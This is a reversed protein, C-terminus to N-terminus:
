KGRCGWDFTGLSTETVVLTTLSPTYSITNVVSGTEPVVWCSPVKLYPTAFTITCASTCSLVRGGTDTGDISGSSVTPATSSAYVHGTNTIGWNTTTASTSSSAIEFMSLNYPVNGFLSVLNFQTVPLSTTTTGVSLAPLTATTDVNFVTTGSSNKITFANTVNTWTNILLAGIAQTFNSITVMASVTGGTAQTTTGVLFGGQFSSTATTTTAFYAAATPTSTSNLVSSGNNAILMNAGISSAGTGGSGIILPVGLNLRAITSSGTVYLANSTTASGFTAGGVANFVGAITSSGVNYFSTSTAATTTGASAEYDTPFIVHAPLTLVAGAGGIILPSNSITIQNATGSLTNTAASAVTNVGTAYLVAGGAAIASSTGLRNVNFTTFNAGTLCGVQAGAATACDIALAGGVAARGATVTIATSGASVTGTAVSAVTSPTGVGTWYTLDGLTPVASTAVKNNFTMWNAASLCGAVAGTATTCGFSGAAGGVQAAITGSFTIPATVGLSSTAISYLTAPTGSTTGWAALQGITEAASTAVKNNFVNFSAISICGAAATSATTCGLVAGSGGIVVPTNSVTIPGGGALTTTAVKGLLAPTASTTTWYPLNGATESSSTSVNGSGSGGGVGCSGWSNNTGDTTLCNGNSPSGALQISIFPDSFAGFQQTPHSQLGFFGALGALLGALGIAINTM